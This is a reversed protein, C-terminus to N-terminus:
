RDYPNGERSRPNTHWRRLASWRSASSRRPASLNQNKRDYFHKTKAKPQPDTRRRLGSWRSAAMTRIMATPEPMQGIAGTQSEAHAPGSRHRQTTQVAAGASGGPYRTEFVAAVEKTFDAERLSHPLREGSLSAQAQRAPRHGRHCIRMAPSLEPLPQLLRHLVEALRRRARVRDSRLRYAQASGSWEQGGGPRQRHNPLGAIQHVGGVAQEADPGSEPQHIGIRQRLSFGLHPVSVSPTHEGIGAGPSERQHDRRLGGGAMADGYGSRQHPIGGAAWRPAGSAGHGGAPLRAPGASRAEAARRHVGPAGPHADHAGACQRLNKVGPSQLYAVGFHRGPKRVAAQRFRHVGAAIHAPSGAGISGRPRCRSVGTPPHGRRYLAARIAAEEGGEEAPHVAAEDLVGGPADDSGPQSRDGEGSIPACYRKTRQEIESVASPTPHGGDLWLNGRADGDVLAGEPEGRRLGENRGFETAGFEAHHHEDVRLMCRGTAGKATWTKLSMKYQFRIRMEPEDVM